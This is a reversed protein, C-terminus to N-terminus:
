LRLVASTSAHMSCSGRPWCDGAMVLHCHNALTVTTVSTYKIHHFLQCHSIIDYLCKRPWISFMSGTRQQSVCYLYTVTRIHIVICTFASDHSCSKWSLICWFGNTLRARGPGVTSSVTSGLNGLMIQPLPGRPCPLPVFIYCLFPSPLTGYQCKKKGSAARVTLAGLFSRVCSKYYSITLLSM